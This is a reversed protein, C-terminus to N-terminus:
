RKPRWLNWIAIATASDAPGVPGIYLETGILHAYDPLNKRIWAEANLKSSTASTTISVSPIVWHPAQARKVTNAIGTRTGVEIPLADLKRYQQEVVFRVLEDHIIMKRKGPEAKTAELRAIAADAARRGYTTM